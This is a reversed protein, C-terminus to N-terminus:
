KKVNGHRHEKLKKRDTFYEDCKTCHYVFTTDVRATRQERGRYGITTRPYGYMTKIVRISM